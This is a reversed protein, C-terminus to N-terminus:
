VKQVTSIEEPTLDYLKYVRQDIEQDTKQIQNDLEALETRYKEFLQLLEDKQALSLNVKLAKVFDSFDLTWWKKLKTSWKDFTFEAYLIRQFQESRQHLTRINGLMSDALEQTCPTCPNDKYGWLQCIRQPKALSFM